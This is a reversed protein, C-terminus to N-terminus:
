LHRKLYSSDLCSPSVASGQYDMPQPVSGLHAEENPLVIEYLGQKTKRVKLQGRIKWADLLEDRLEVMSIQDNTFLRGLIFRSARFRTSQVEELSFQVVQDDTVHAM